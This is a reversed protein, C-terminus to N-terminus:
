TCPSSKRDRSSRLGVADTVVANVVFIRAPYIQPAALRAATAPVEPERLLTRFQHSFASLKKM